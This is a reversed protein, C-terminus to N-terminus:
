RNADGAPLFAWYRAGGCKGGTRRDRTTDSTPKAGRHSQRQRPTLKARLGSDPASDQFTRSENFPRIARAYAIAHRARAASATEPGTAALQKDAYDRISVYFCLRNDPAAALLSKDRLAVLHSLAHEEGIVAEAEKPSFGGVFVSCAALARQEEPLLLNWSWDIASALTAHREDSGRRAHTLLDLREELETALDAASMVRTRAAALEIALPIGDLRRVIRAIPFPDDGANGGAARARDVFFRVAETEWVDARDAQKQPCELPKLELVEEGPVGLRERSTVIVTLEPAAKCWTGLVSGFGSLQEFNDLVLLTPGREALAARVHPGIDNAALHLSQTDERWLSAVVYVLDNETQARTLDCFWAGGGLHFRSPALALYAEAVRTKGIGPPGLLTILRAGGKVLGELRALDDGRGILPGLTAGFTSRPSAQM